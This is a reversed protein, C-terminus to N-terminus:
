EHILKDLLQQDQKYYAVLLSETRADISEYSSKVRNIRSYIPLILNEFKKSQVINSALPVKRLLSYTYNAVKQITKFRTAKAANVKETMKSPVYDPDVELFRFLRELVGLPDAVIDSHQIVHIQSRPFNDFFTKLHKYYSGLEKFFSIETFSEFDPPIKAILSNSNYFHWSRLMSTPERLAVILKVQPNYNKIRKCAATAYMYSPCYEGFITAGPKGWPFKQHYWTEGQQFYNFGANTYSRLVSDSFFYLEKEAAMGVEPHEELCKAIWTTGCKPAGIGIFDIKKGLTM